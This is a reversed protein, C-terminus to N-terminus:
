RRLRRLAARADDPSAELEEQALRELLRRARPTGVKELVEIARLRGVPLQLEQGIPVKVLFAELPKLMADGAAVLERIAEFARRADAAALAACLDALEKETRSKGARAAHKVRGGLDWLLINGDAGASALTRGDPSFAVAALRGRHGLLRARVQGTAVEWVCVAPAEPSSSGYGSGNDAALMRGDPSFAVRDVPFETTFKRGLVKGTKTDWLRVGVSRGCLAVHRGDPSFAVQDVRSDFSSRKAWQLQKGSALDFLASAVVLRAGDPSVALSRAVSIERAMERVRKGSPIDWVQVGGDRLAGAVRKGDPTLAVAIFSQGLNHENALYGASTSKGTERDWIHIRGDGGVGALQKSDPTFCLSGGSALSDRLRETYRKCEKWTATDWLRLSGDASHSLLTKGDPSFLLVSVEAEHGTTGAVEKGSAVDWIRITADYSCSAVRKGDPSFAVDYVEGHHRVIHHLRKGTAVDWVDVAFTTHGSKSWARGASAIHKGDPSYVLKGLGHCREAFRRLEKGTALDYLIIRCERNSCALVKGDPSVAPAGGGVEKKGSHRYRVKGTTTDLVYRVFEYRNVTPPDYAVVVATKGDPALTLRWVKDTLHFTRLERRNEVDWFSVIFASPDAMLLHQRDASLAYHQHSNDKLIQRFEKETTLDYLRVGEGSSGCVLIAKSDPTFAARYAYHHPWARVLRGSAEWLQVSGHGTSVLWKGDASWSVCYIGTGARFRASGIRAVAGDPLPDGQADRRPAGAPSASVLVLVALLGWCRRCRSLAMVVRRNFVTLM